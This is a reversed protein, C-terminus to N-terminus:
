YRISFLHMIFLLFSGISQFVGKDVRPRKTARPPEDDSPEHGSQFDSYDRRAVGRSSKRQTSSTDSSM